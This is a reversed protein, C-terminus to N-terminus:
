PSPAARASTAAPELRAGMGVKGRPAPSPAPTTASPHSPTAASTSALTAAVFTEDTLSELFEILAQRQAPDVKLTHLRTDVHTGPHAYHDLVAALDKFRGDHMYPATLAVNRLTPVRIREESTGNSAFTPEGTAGQADRWNGSFNFGSHCNACGVDPAFFLDMGRKAQESLAAHDGGFVYRDFASHGSILTREFAAIAKVLHEFTPAPEAPFAAAFAGAYSEDAALEALVRQERGKMGMEVPHDNLLPELMQAELSRVAPKSWGYSVNYAVNVLAIANLPLAAGTAGISVGRQDAFAREPAHCSACSFKGTVSLKPEFFLRRGLAVKATSMPNDAPVAPETFGRPLQWDYTAADAAVVLSALLAAAIVVPLKM